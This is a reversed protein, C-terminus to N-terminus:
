FKRLDLFKKELYRMNDAEEPSKDKFGLLHLVGHIMVRHLEDEFSVEFKAANEKVREISIFIDSDIESNDDSNDFTIIDTYTDHQLFDVNIKHLYEDDCFIYNIENIIFHYEEATNIIWQKLESEKSPSFEVQENFFNISEM